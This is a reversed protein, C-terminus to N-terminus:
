RSCEIHNDRHIKRRQQERQKKVEHLRVYCMSDITMDPQAIERIIDLKIGIELCRRIEAMQSSSLRSDMMFSVERITLGHEFAIILQEMQGQDYVPNIIWEFLRKPLSLARRAMLLQQENLGLDNFEELSTEFSSERMYAYRYQKMEEVSYKEKAYKEIKQQDLGYLIGYLVERMKNANLNEKFLLNIEKDDLGYDIADKIINKQEDDLTKNNLLHNLRITYKDYRM